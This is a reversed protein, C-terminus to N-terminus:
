ENSRTRQAATGIAKGDLSALVMGRYHPAAMAAVFRKELKKNLWFSPERVICIVIEGFVFNLIHPEKDFGALAGFSSSLLRRLGLPLLVAVVLFDKLLRANM